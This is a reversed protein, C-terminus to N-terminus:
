PAPDECEGAPPSFRHIVGKWDIQMVAILLAFAIVQAAIAAGSGLRPRLADGISSVATNAAIIWFIYGIFRSAGFVILLARLPTRAIGAALFLQNTPVAGLGMLALTSIGWSKRARLTEALATINERWRRPIIRTGLQRSGLALIARGTTAGIAGVLALPLVGADEQVHAWALLAWTPPMFAPIVNLLAAGVGVLLWELFGFAIPLPM